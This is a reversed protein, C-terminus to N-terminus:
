LKKIMKQWKIINELRTGLIIMKEFSHSSIKNIFQYNNVCKILLKKDIFKYDMVKNLIIFLCEESKLSNLQLLIINNTMIIPVKYHIKLTKQCCQQRGRFSSGYFNCNQELIKIISKNIVRVNEVDYIITKKGKKLIAVTKNNIIYNEM